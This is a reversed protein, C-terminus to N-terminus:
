TWQIGRKELLKRAAQVSLNDPHGQATAVLKEIRAPPRIEGSKVKSQYEQRLQERRILLDHDLKSQREITQRKARGTGINKHLASDGIDQRSAGNISLYTEEDIIQIM